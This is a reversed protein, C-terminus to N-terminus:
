KSTKRRAPLLPFLTAPNSQQENQKAVQPASKLSSLFQRYSPPERKKIKTNMRPHPFGEKTM